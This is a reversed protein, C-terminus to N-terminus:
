LPGSEQCVGINHGIEKLEPHSDMLEDPVLLENNPHSHLHEAYKSISKEDHRLIADVIVEYISFRLQNLGYGDGIGTDEKIWKWVQPWKYGWNNLLEIINGIVRNVNEGLDVQYEKLNNFVEERSRYDENTLSLLVSESISHIESIAVEAHELMAKIQYAVRANAWVPLEKPKYILDHTAISWAHQLFTKVQCEFVLGKTEPVSDRDKLVLYLRLDDFVFSEPRKMTFGVRQPRQYKLIFFSRMLKVVEDIQSTNEVVITCAFIDEIVASWRRSQAKVYFSELSKLRYLYLWRANKVDRDIVEKVRSGLLNYKDVLAEYYTMVSHPIKM